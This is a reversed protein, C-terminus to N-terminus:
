RLRFGRAIFDTQDGLGQLKNSSGTFEIRYILRNNAQLYYTHRAMPKGLTIYEYPYKHRDITRRFEGSERERVRGLFCSRITTSASGSSRSLFAM